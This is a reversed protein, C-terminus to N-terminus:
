SLVVAKYRQSLDTLILMFFRMEITINICTQCVQVAFICSM